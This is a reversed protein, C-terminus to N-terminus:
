TCLGGNKIYASKQAFQAKERLINIEVSSFTKKVNRLYSPYHALVNKLGEDMLKKKQDGFSASRVHYIFTKPSIVNKWGHKIARLCFENEEGYGKPFLEADFLGIETLLDRKIYLCFGSGTTVEVPQCKQTENIIIEAYQNHTLFKPKENLRGQEPFSFAGANDSMATVTGIKPHSYAISKLSQVWENTVITDSNLLIIDKGEALEIAKNINKTYGLNEINHVIDFQTYTELMSPMRKDSSSDNMVLVQIHELSSVTNMISDLCNRVEEFANYVPVVITIDIITKEKKTLSLSKSLIKNMNENYIKTSSLKIIDERGQNGYQEILKPNNCFEQVYKVVAETQKHEVLYGSQAHKVLEPIAGYAYSIVPRRAALAEGVTRGFSEAFHSLSFIVNGLEIAEIPNKLYGKFVLNTLGSSEAEEKLKDIYKNNPGVLIFEANDINQCLNAIEFFDYIGKKPINSSIMVFSVKNHNIINPVDFYDTDIKNYIIGKDEFKQFLKLTEKSNAVIFNSSEELEKLIELSKKGITKQLAADRDILERVHIVKPIDFIKAAELPEKCVITNVYVLDIKHKRIINQILNVSLISVGKPNWFNYPVVYIFSCYKLLMDIYSHNNANPVTIILNNKTESIAQVMDLFSREGGFLMKGVAHASLLITKQTSEIDKQGKMCFTYKPIELSVHGQASNYELIPKYSGMSMKQMEESDIIYKRIDYGDAAYYLKEDAKIKNKWRSLFEKRNNIVFRGRGKSKGEYHYVISNAVYLSYSNKLKNLRLCLDVDEQGNIFSVDFGNLIAFDEARLAICAGTIAQFYRNNELVDSPVDVDQYIPYGIDSKDSFVIGMCQLNGDPYLLRPQTSSVNENDLPTILNKLWGETVTTDNNLFVVISGLSLSFGLNCGLAFNLNRENHVIKFKSIHSWEDLSKRDEENQGNNIIIVEFEVGADITSLSKLAENTLKRQGYVPIIVSVLNLNRVKRKEIEWNLLSKQYQKMTHQIIQFKEENPLINNAKGVTSRGEKLGYKVFHYFPSIGSDRIDKYKQQYYRPNFSDNPQRNENEGYAIYHKLPNIGKKAVDLNMQLYYKEDFLKSRKIVEYKEKDSVKLEKRISKSKLNDSSSLRKYALEMNLMILSTLEPAQNIAKQYLDLSKKYEKNKFEDNAQKLFSM